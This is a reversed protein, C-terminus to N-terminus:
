IGANQVAFTRIKTFKTYKKLANPLMLSFSKMPAISIFIDKAKRKQKLYRLSKDLSFLM